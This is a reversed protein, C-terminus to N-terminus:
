FRSACEHVPLDHGKRAQVFLCLHIGVSVRTESLWAADQDIISHAVRALM